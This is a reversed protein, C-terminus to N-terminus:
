FSRFSTVWQDYPRSKQPSYYTWPTYKLRSYEAATRPKYNFGQNILLTNSTSMELSKSGADFWKRYIAGAKEISANIPLDQPNGESGIGMIKNKRGNRGWNQEQQMSALLAKPNIGYKQAANYVSEHAKDENVLEPNKTMIITKIQEKSLSNKDTFEDDSIADVLPFPTKNELDQRSITRTSSRGLDSAHNREASPTNMSINNIGNLGFAGQGVPLSYSEGYAADGIAGLTSGVDAFGSGYGAADLKHRATVAQLHNRLKQERNFREWTGEPIASFNDEEVAEPIPCYGGKEVEESGSAMSTSDASPQPNPQLLSAAVANGCNEELIQLADYHGTAAGTALASAQSKVFGSARGIKEDVAQALGQETKGGMVGATAASVGLELWDFARHHDLAMNLAQSAADREMMEAAAAVNFADTNMADLADRIPKYMSGNLIHAVGATAATGLGTMLAGTFDIGNQQRMAVAGVQGAVSSVFGAAFSVGVTQTMSLAVTSGAASAISGGGLASLGNAILGGLGLGTLSTGTAIAAVAGASMVMVVASVVVVAIKALTKWFRDGHKSPPPPATPQLAAATASTDGTWDAGSLVKHTRSTQHQGRAAPPITIRMGVHLPGGQEGASSARQTIGNADALLYWLSSDGYVQLAIEELTDGAKLTYTGLNDEPMEVSATRGPIRGDGIADFPNIRSPNMMGMGPLTKQEKGDPAFGGYVTLTQASNHLDLRLDGITKGAVTLYSTENDQDRRGRIGELSSTFYVTDNKHTPSDTVHNLLGNVDYAHESYSYTTACGDMAVTLSETGQLYGDWLAFAYDHTQTFAPTSWKQAFGKTKMQKVNGVADYHYETSSVAIGQWDWTSQTQLVGNKYGMLSSQVMLGNANYSREEKLLGLEYKRTKADKNNKQIRYVQNEANYDYTYHQLAGGEYTDSAHINGAEDYAMLSGQTFTINMAGNLLQGKNILMRNNEDYTFYDTRNTTAPEGSFGASVKADRINGVADYEYDVSLETALQGASGALGGERRVQVLRGLADYQYLDKQGLWGVLGGTMKSLVQGEADYTFEAVENRTRDNHLYLQGNSLYIHDIDKGATSTEKVLLGNTNYTNTTIHGGLDTSEVMRGQADYRWSMRHGNADLQATKHGATDYEYTTRGHADTQETMHNLEDYVSTRTNGAADTQRVLQGAENYEYGQTTLATQVSQLRNEHDYTYETVNLREDTLQTMHGLLDYKKDRHHGKADIDEIVRGEADFVHAVTHGNADTMAITRGLGDVAYHIVPAITRAVGHEDVAKVEPLTQQILANLANYEYATAFGNANTHQTINGWRDVTQSQTVRPLHDSRNFSHSGADQAQGVLRGLADYTNDQRQLQYQSAQEDFRLVYAYGEESLDVGTYGYEALWGNSSTVVQTVHANLDYLYIQTYGQTNSRWVRGATDYDVYTSFIGDLGKQVVEGFANYRADDTARVGNANLTKTQTLHQEKDYVYRKDSLLVTGDAQHLVQWTRAVHGNADYSYHTVHQNGDIKELLQGHLGYVDRRIIDKESAENLTFTSADATKAGLAWAHSELLQGLADYRYTVASRGAPTVAGVKATLQGAANYYTFATYGEPDTTSVLHGLADYGYRSVLDRTVTEYQALNGTLRSVRVQHVTKQTLRGNLDYLFSVHRDKDSSAPLVSADLTRTAYQIEDEILGDDTYSYTTLYHEADLTATKLGDQDYVHTTTAWDTSTLQVSQTILDGFVNYTFRTSPSLSVEYIARRPNYTLLAKQYSATLRHDQDYQYDDRRDHPGPKLITWIANVDFTAMSDLDCREAFRTKSRVNGFSDYTYATIAGEADIAYQQQGVRDYAFHRVHGARDCQEILEGFANYSWTETLTTVRDDRMDSAYLGAQNVAMNPYLTKTLRNNADHQYQVRQNIGGVDRTTAEVNGFADYETKTIVIRAEDHWAGQNYTTLTTIPSRTEILQNQANFAYEWRAQNADVKSIVNNCHDYTYETRHGEADTQARLRGLADYKFDTRHTDDSLLGRPHKIDAVVNGVADYRHEVVHGSPSIRFRERGAADFVARTVRDDTSPPIFSAGNLSAMEEVTLRRAYQRSATRNGAADYEYGTLSGAPTTQYILRGALDYVYYTSEDRQPDFQLTSPDDFLQITRDHRITQILQGAADYRSEFVRGGTDVRFRERNLGDYTFQTTRAYASYPEPDDGALIENLDCAFDFEEKSVLRDNADYLYKTCHGLADYSRFLQGQQDFRYFQHHDLHVDPQISEAVSAEDYSALAPVRHAYVTTQMVLGWQSYCHMTVVGGADVRFRLQNSADYVFHTTHHNADTQSTLNDNADYTYSTTLSLGDPDLTSTEIRGLADQTYATVRDLGDPNHRVERVLYGFDNYTFTTVLNLGEPDLCTERLHGQFDYSFTTCRGADVLQVQRGIADYTYTTTINLGDPDVVRTLMHGAADYTFRRAHGAADVQFTLRGAADYEDDLTSHEPADVHAVLGRADYQYTTIQGKGDTIRVTDGFANFQTTVTSVAGHQLALTQTKDDYTYTYYDPGYVNLARGFADYFLREQGGTRNETFVREGRKSWEYRTVGQRGDWEQAIRGFADYQMGVSQHIGGVDRIRQSLLGRRDYQYRTVVDKLGASHDTVQLREGFANYTTIETLGTGKRQSMLLGLANYEYHTVEDLRDDRLREMQQQIAEYTYDQCDVCYASYRISTEVQQFTNYRTETIEGTPSMSYTLLGAENYIFRSTEQLANTESVLHGALDYAYTVSHQQWIAEIEDSNLADSQMLLAAGLADLRQVVRGLADYRYQMGRVEHSHSDTRTTRILLGANDYAYVIVLGTHTHEEILQKLDNYYCTTHHDNNQALPRLTDLLHAKNLLDSSPVRKYYAITDTLLGRADYVYETLYGAGDIDAVKFCAANYLSYVHIDGYRDLSPADAGWNGTRAGTVRNKYQIKEILNGQTDYCYATAAGEGNIEAQLRGAKDYYYTLTRDDAHPLQDLDRASLRLGATDNTLRNAYATKSLLHGEADYEYATVAGTADIQYALQNYDNYLVRTVRDQPSTLPQISEFAIRKDQVDRLNVRQQYQRTLICHGEDDYEYATVQGNVAISAQLRGQADYYQYRTQGAADTESILRGADDYRYTTTGYDRTADLQHTSLLLGNKDFISVTQLGNADTKLIRQHADDYEITQTHHQNDITQILRGLDDYIFHTTSLGSATLSSQEVLRQSADYRSYTHLADSTIIGAGAQDVQTYHIEECVCGRTDYHYDTLSITQQNQLASWDMLAALDYAERDQWRSQLYHRSSVRCGNADYRHETVVGDATIEFRLHGREDYVFRSTQPKCVAHQEDFAQYRTEQLLRHEGDYTREIVEGTPSELRVCDGWENYSFAWRQKGQTISELYQGEYHYRLSYHEPGDIGSLRSQEDYYYTWTESLGNTMRTQGALYDIRTTHQEGDTMRIVRGKADYELHVHTGDSQRIDSILNSDGDYDYAIWYIRGDGLDRGVRNLRQKDDYDYHLHHVPQGESEFAVDALLGDRFTWTISQQRDVDSIRTLRGQEYHCQLVHGDRDSLKTLLGDLNYTCRLPGSGEQYCWSLGDFTLRSLGGEEALYAHMRADYVFRTVHGDEDTRNVVSGATNATGQVALRTDTNFRWTGGNQSNYSQFLNLGAGFDALFGDSQTMVLNGNAANVSLATGGQGLGPSGKPGYNGLQSLSSGRLGLGMGTFIQTM